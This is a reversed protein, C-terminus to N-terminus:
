FGGGIGPCQFYNGDCQVWNSGSQCNGVNSSCFLRGTASCAVEVYCMNPCFSKQGDCKVHAPVAQPYAACTSGSCSAVNGDGCAFSATCSSKQTAQREGILIEFEALDIDEAAKETNAFTTEAEVDAALAPSALLALLVM